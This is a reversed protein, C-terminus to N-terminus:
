QEFCEKVTCIIGFIANLVVPFAGVMLVINNNLFGGFVALIACLVIFIVYIKEM